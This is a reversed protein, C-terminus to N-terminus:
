FIWPIFRATVAHWSEWERGFEAHLMQEEQIVRKWVGFMFIALGVPALTWFLRRLARYWRPPSWCSLVGDTRGLLAINCIGVIVLGTYSPHQVYHYIGTTMLHDPKTLEFTFNKGLSAYPVLRLPVGVCFILALPISTAASWTILKTNLSNERGHRLLYSPVKPYFYALASTHIALLALPGLLINITLTNTIKLSRILDDTSPIIIPSSNPPTLAIYTGITSVLITASLSGQYISPPM